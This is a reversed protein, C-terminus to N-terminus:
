QTAAKEIMVTELVELRNALAAVKEDFSFVAKEVRRDLKTARAEIKVIRKGLAKAENGLIKIQLQAFKSNVSLRLVTVGELDFSTSNESAEISFIHCAKCTIWVGAAPL